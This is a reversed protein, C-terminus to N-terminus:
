PRGDPGGEELSRDPLGLSETDGFIERLKRTARLITRSVANPTKGLRRAADKVALGEIRVLRLVERYDEPLTELDASLREFRENRRSARSPTLSSGAPEADLSGPARRGRRVAKSAVNLAISALWRFFSDEGRWEFADLKELARVFTEQVLDDLGEHALAGPYRCRILAALRPRLRKTLGELALADGAKAREILEQDSSDQKMIVAM